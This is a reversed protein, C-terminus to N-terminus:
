REPNRAPESTQNVSEPAREETTDNESLLLRAMELLLRELAEYYRDTEMEGKRQRLMEIQLELENRRAIVEAPLAAERPNPCLHWQHARFGDPLLKGTEGRRVPRIGDFGSMPVPRGDGNDDLLAHETALRGEEAYFAETRSSARLFAELLSVQEDKDLDAELNNISEALFRGFRSFNVESGRETASIVIRGPQSLEPLFPASASFCLMVATPRTVPVLWDKLSQPELDPGPLNFRATKGDFTGHGLFLIWLPREKEESFQQLAAQIRPLMQQSNEGEILHVQNSGSEAAAKWRAAWEKFMVGYEPEGASGVVILLDGRASVPTAARDEAQSHAVCLCRSILLCCFAAWRRM